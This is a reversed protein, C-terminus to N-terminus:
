RVRKKNTTYFMLANYQTQSISRRRDDSVCGKRRNLTIIVTAFFQCKSNNNSNADISQNPKRFVCIRNEDDIVLLEVVLLVISM